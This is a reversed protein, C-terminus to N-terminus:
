RNESLRVRRIVIVLIILFAGLGVMVPLGVEDAFGTQPLATPSVGGGAAATPYGQAAQTLLAAVTQTRSLLDKPVVGEAQAQLEETEVIVIVETATAQVIVATPSPQQTASPVATASPTLLEQQVFAIQTAALATATNAANIEAAQQQRAANRSPLYLLAFVAMAVLALLFIGGIVGLIIVFSRNNAPRRPREPETLMEEDFGEFIDDDNLDSM